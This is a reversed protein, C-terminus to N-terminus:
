AQKVYITKQQDSLYTRKWGDHETQTGYRRYYEDASITQIKPKRPVNDRMAIAPNFHVFRGTQLKREIADCIAQQEAPSFTKWQLECEARYFRAVNGHHEVLKWFNEFDM